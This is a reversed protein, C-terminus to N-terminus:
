HFGFLQLSWIFDNPYRKKLDDIKLATLELEYKFFVTVVTVMADFFILKLKQKVVGINQSRVHYNM